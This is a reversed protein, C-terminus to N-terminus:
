SSLSRPVLPGFFERGGALCLSMLVLALRRTEKWFSVSIMMKYLGGKQEVTAPDIESFRGPENATEGDWLGEKVGPLDQRGNGGSGVQWGPSPIQVYRNRNTRTPCPPSTLGDAFRRRTTTRISRATPCRVKTVNFQESAQFDPRSAEVQM